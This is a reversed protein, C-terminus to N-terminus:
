LYTVQSTIKWGSSNTQAVLYAQSSTISVSMTVGTTDGLDTTSNDTYVANGNIWVGLVEGVRANSASVATYKYFASSFSGTSQVFINNSGTISSPLIATRVQSTGITLVNAYSATFSSSIAAAVQTLNMQSTVSASVAPILYSSNPVTIAPLGSIPLDAM